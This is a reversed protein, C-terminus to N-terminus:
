AHGIVVRAHIVILRLPSAASRWFLLHKVLRFLHIIRGLEFRWSLMELVVIKAVHGHGRHRWLGKVGLSLIHVLLLRLLLKLVVKLFWLGGLCNDPWTLSILLWLIFIIPGTLNHPWGLGHFLLLLLRLLLIFSSADAPQAFSWGLLFLLVPILLLFGLPSVFGLM